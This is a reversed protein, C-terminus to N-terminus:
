STVSVKAVSVRACMGLLRWLRKRCYSQKPAICGYTECVGGADHAAALRLAHLYELAGGLVLLHWFQHSQAVIDFAGPAFREPARTVFFVFGLAYYGVARVFAQEVARTREHAGCHLALVHHLLRM